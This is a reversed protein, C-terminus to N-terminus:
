ALRRYCGLWKLCNGAGMVWGIGVADEVSVYGILVLHKLPCDAVVWTSECQFSGLNDLLDVLVFAECGWSDELVKVKDLIM